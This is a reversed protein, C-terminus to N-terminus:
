NLAGVVFSFREGDYDINLSSNDPVQGALIEKALPTEIQRSIVRKLPRAGFAPDYGDHALKDLAAATLHLTVRREALRRRLGGLQIEVIRRLDTPTLADFVIIDDVRNLFEPRFSQQM